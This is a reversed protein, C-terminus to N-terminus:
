NDLMSLQESHSMTGASISALWTHLWAFHSALDSDENLRSPTEKHILVDYMAREEDSDKLEDIAALTETIERELIADEDEENM